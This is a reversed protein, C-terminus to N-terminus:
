KLKVFKIVPVIQKMTQRWNAGVAQCWVTTHDLTRVVRKHVVITGVAGPNNVGSISVREVNGKHCKVKLAVGWTSIIVKLNTVNWWSLQKRDEPNKETFCWQEPNETDLMLTWQKENSASTNLTKMKFCQDKPSENHLVSTLPKGTPKGMDKIDTWEVRTQFPWIRQEYSVSFGWLQSGVQFLQFHLILYPNFM